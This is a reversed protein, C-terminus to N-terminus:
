SNEIKLGATSSHRKELNILEKMEGKKTLSIIIKYNLKSKIKSRKSIYRMEELYYYCNKQVIQNYEHSM